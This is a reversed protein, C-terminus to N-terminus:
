APRNQKEGSEVKLDEGATRGGAQSEDADAAELASSNEGSIESMEHIEEAEVARLAAGGEGSGNGNEHIEVASVDLHGGSKKRMKRLKKREKEEANKAHAEKIQKWLVEFRNNIEGCIMFIYICFYLWFMFVVMTTLSGYLSFGNFYRIYVSLFFSFIYWAAACIVAGVLQSRFTAPRNPLFRYIFCFIGILVPFIILARLRILIDTVKSVIPALGALYEQLNRGYVLLIMMVLIAIILLFTDMAARVRLVFWNRTEEIDYIINLGYRLSQMAKAASFVAIVVSPILLTGSNEYVEGLIQDLFSTVEEPMFLDVYSVVMEQTIPTFRLLFSLVLLFPIISMVIFLTAQGTYAGVNDKKIKQMVTKVVQWYNGM